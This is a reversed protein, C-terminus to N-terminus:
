STEDCRCGSEEADRLLVPDAGYRGMRCGYVVIGAADSELRVELYGDKAAKRMEEEGVPLRVQYGYGWKGSKKYEFQTDTICAGNSFIGRRDCPADPIEIVTRKGGVTFVTRGPYLTEDTLRTGELCECTSLELQLCGKREGTLDAEFRYIVTGKGKMWLLQRSNEDYYGHLSDTSRVAPKAAPCSSLIRGTADARGNDEIEIQLSNECLLEERDYLSYFLCVANMGEPIQFSVQAAQFPAYLYGRIRSTSEEIRIGEKGNKDTGKWVFRLTLERGGLREEWLSVFVPLRLVANAKQRTLPPYDAMVLNRSNISGYGAFSFDEKVFGFDRETRLSTLPSTDENEQSALNMRIYGNVGPLIRVLQEIQDTHVFESIIVPQGKQEEKGTYQLKELDMSCNKQLLERVELVRMLETNKENYCNFFSGEYNQKTMRRFFEAATWYTDPYMHYDLLQTEGTKAYGSNDIVLIQRNREKCLRATEKQWKQAEPEEWPSMEHGGTIGWSENFASFLIIGPHYNQKRLMAELQSRYHDKWVANKWTGYFNSPHEDWVLMGLEDCLSYWEPENDKIHMRILNYGYEKAKRIDFEMSGPRMGYLFPYTYIGWPNYGQDLVGRIFLPKKNLLIQGGETEILRFGAKRGGKGIIEGDKWLMAELSYLYPDETDWLHVNEMCLMFDAAFGDATKSIAADTQEGGICVEVRDASLSAEERQATALIVKGAIEVRRVNVDLTYDLLIDQIRVPRAEELWVNQRIGPADTFWFGQKGTCCDASNFDYTVKVTLLHSGRKVKGLPFRVAHYPEQLCGLFREDLWVKGFGGVAAFVLEAETEEALFIRRQYWGTNGMEEPNTVWSCNQRLSYEDALFGEGFAQLSQWSFPVEIRRKWLHRDPEFWKETEGKEERDWDFQWIGNLGTIPAETVPLGQAGNERREGNRGSIVYQRKTGDHFLKFHRFGTDEEGAVCFWTGYPLKGFSFAGNEETVTWRDRFGALHLSIGNAPLGTEEWVCSGQCMSERSKGKYLHFGGFVAEAKRKGDLNVSQLMLRANIQATEEEPPLMCSLVPDDGYWITVQRKQKRFRLLLPLEAKVEAEALVYYRKAGEYRFTDGLPVGSPIRLSVRDKEVAALLYRDYCGDGFYLGAGAGEDMSHVLVAFEVDQSDVFFDSVLMHGNRCRDYEPLRVSGDKRYEATLDAPSNCNLFIWEEKRYKQM